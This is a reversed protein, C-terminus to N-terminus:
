LTRMYRFGPRLTMATWAILVAPCRPKAKSSRSFPVSETLESSLQFTASASSQPQISDSYSSEAHLSGTTMGISIKPIGCHDDSGPFSGSRTMEGM